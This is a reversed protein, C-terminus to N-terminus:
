ETRSPYLVADLENGSLTATIGGFSASWQGDQTKVIFIEAGVLFRVGQNIALTKILKAQKPFAQRHTYTVAGNWSHLEHGCRCNFNDRDRVIERHQEVHWVRGCNKCTM